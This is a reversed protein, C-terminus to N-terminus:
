NNGNTDTILHINSPFDEEKCIITMYVIDNKFVFDWDDASSSPRWRFKVSPVTSMPEIRLRVKSVDIQSTIISSDPLTWSFTVSPSGNAYNKVIFYPTIASTPSSDSTNVLRLKTLEHTGKLVEGLTSQKSPETSVECSVLILLSFFLLLTKMTSIKLKM